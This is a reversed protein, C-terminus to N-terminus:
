PVRTELGQQVQTMQQWQVLQKLHRLPCTSPRTISEACPFKIPFVPYVIVKKPVRYSQSAPVRLNLPAYHYLEQQGEITDQTRRDDRLQTRRNDRISTSPPLSAGKVRQDM